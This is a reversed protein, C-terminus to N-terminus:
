LTLRKRKGSGPVELGRDSVGSVGSVVPTGEGDVDTEDLPADSRGFDTSETTEPTEADADRRQAELRYARNGTYSDRGAGLITFGGFVRDIRKALAHGMRQQASLDSRGAKLGVILRTEKALGLLDGATVPAGSFRESWAEVLSVWDETDTDAEAHLRERNGLFGPVGAVELIGGLVRAWSEFRGLTTRGLPMGQDVWAQIISLCADVLRSRNDATWGALDEHRFGTREEPREVGADLRIPVVRRAMEDSMTVNNGTAVWTASNSVRVMQSQGLIRGVWETTTLVANLSNSRLTTVNDLLILPHGAVLSATIRKEMEEDSHPLSMVGALRGLALLSLVDALLGKGTGRAPADILYLPTPGDILLHVFLQLLLILVHARSGDDAFPFDVLLDEFILSQAEDPGLSPHPLELGRLDLIMGSQPHYGEARLVEGGPLLIPISSIGLLRNLRLDPAALLDAVVDNPPRAPNEGEDTVAVFDATRDLIGKLRAFFLPEAVTGDEGQGLEVMKTGRMFLFPKPDNAFVLANAADSSIDRMHRHSVSIVPRQRDVGAKSQGSRSAVAAEREARPLSPEWRKSKKILRRLHVGSIGLSKCHGVVLLETDTPDLSDLRRALWQLGNRRAHASMQSVRECAWDSFPLAADLLKRFAEPDESVLYDDLGNKSGDTSHPLLVVTVDAGREHLQWSLEWTADAVNQNTALDSDPCVYVPRDSYDIEDLELLFAHERDRFGYVGGLGICAFGDQDARASKKEAETFILAGPTEGLALRTRVPIYARLLKEKPSLYKAAKGNIMPPRDPKVRCFTEAEIGPYPIVLGEGVPFGLLRNIRETTGSFFGLSQITSDTLGSERLDALHHPLLDDLSSM